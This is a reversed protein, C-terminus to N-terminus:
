RVRVRTARSVEEIYQQLQEAIKAFIAYQARYIQNDTGSITVLREEERKEIEEGEDEGKKNDESSSTTTKATPPTTAAERDVAAATPTTPTPTTATVTDDSGEAGEGGEKQAGGEGRKENGEVRVVAGTSRM